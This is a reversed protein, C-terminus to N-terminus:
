GFSGGESAPPEAVHSLGWDAEVGIVKVAPKNLKIAAAVGSILGGGGVSVFVVDVEPLDELIELGVTGHGAM